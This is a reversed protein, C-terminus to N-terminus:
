YMRHIDSMDNSPWPPLAIDEITYSSNTNFHMRTLVRMKKFLFTNLFIKRKELYKSTPNLYKYKPEKLILPIAFIFEEFINQIERRIDKLIPMMQTTEIEDEHKLLRYYIQLFRELLVVINNYGVSNWNKIFYMERLFDVLAPDKDLFIFKVPKDQIWTTPYLAYQDTDLHWRMNTTIKKIFDSRAKITKNNTDEILNPVDYLYLMGLIIAFILIHILYTQTDGSGSAASDQTQTKYIFFAYCLGLVIPPIVQWM